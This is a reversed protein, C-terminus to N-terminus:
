LSGTVTPRLWWAKASRGPCPCASPAALAADLSREDDAAAARHAAVITELYAAM